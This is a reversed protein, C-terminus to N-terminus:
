RTLAARFVRQTSGAGGAFPLGLSDFLAACDPDMPNSMCGPQSEDTNALDSASVLEALDVVIGSTTPDFGDIAIEPVNLTDCTANGMM